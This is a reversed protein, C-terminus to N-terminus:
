TSEVVYDCAGAQALPLKSEWQDWKSFYGLVGRADKEGARNKAMGKSLDQMAAYGVQVPNSGV